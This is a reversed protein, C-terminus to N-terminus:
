LISLRIGICNAAASNQKLFYSPKDRTAVRIKFSVQCVKEFLLALQMKNFGFEFYSENYTIINRLKM